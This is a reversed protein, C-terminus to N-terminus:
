HKLKSTHILTNGAYYKNGKKKLYTGNELPVYRTCSCFFFISFLIFGIWIGIIGILEKNRKM